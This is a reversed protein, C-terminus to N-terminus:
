SGQSAIEFEFNIVGNYSTFGHLPVVTTPMYTRFRIGSITSRQFWNAVQELKTGFEVKDRPAKTFLTLDLTGWVRTPSVVSPGALNVDDIVLEFLYFEKNQQFLMGARTAGLDMGEELVYAYRMDAPVKDDVYNRFRVELEMQSSLQTNPEIM